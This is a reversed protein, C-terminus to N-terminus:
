SRKKIDSILQGGQDLRCNERYETISLGAHYKFFKCLLEASYFGLREAIHATSLHKACCLDKIRELRFQALKESLCQGDVSKMIRNLHARSCKMARAVDTATIAYQSHEEMWRCADRYLAIEGPDGCTNQNIEDLLTLLMAEAVGPLVHRHGVSQYLNHIQEHLRTSDPFITPANEKLFSLNFSTGFVIQIWELSDEATLEVSSFHPVILISNKRVSKCSNGVRITGSLIYIVVHYESFINWRCNAEQRRKSCSVLEVCYRSPTRQSNQYKQTEEEVYIM